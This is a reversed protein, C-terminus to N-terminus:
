KRLMEKIKQAAAIGRQTDEATRAPADITQQHPRGPMHPKLAAPAPWEKLDTQLLGKFATHLRPRDIAEIILQYSGAIAVLWIDATLTITDAAPTGPRSLAVLAQLGAAIEQRLWNTGAWQHLAALAQARKGTPAPQTTQTVYETVAPAPTTTNEVVRKLYNHNSLPKGAGEQRKQRMAATTEELAPALRAPDIGLALVETALKLARQHSLDRSAPRFCGLYGVLPRFLPGSQALLVLLERGAEDATFAELSNSAHCVPCRLKLAEEM